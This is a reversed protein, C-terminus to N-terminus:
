PVGAGICFQRKTRGFWVLRRSCVLCGGSVPTWQGNNLVYTMYRQVTTASSRGDTQVAPMCGATQPLGHIRTPRFWKRRSSTYADYLDDSTCYVNLKTLHQGGDMMENWDRRKTHLRARLERLTWITTNKDLAAM